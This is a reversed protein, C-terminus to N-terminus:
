FWDVTIPEWFDMGSLESGLMLEPRVATKIGSIDSKEHTLGRPGIFYGTLKKWGNIWVGFSQKENDDATERGVSENGLDSVASDILAVSICGGASGGLMAVRTMQVGGSNQTLGTGDARGLWFRSESEGSAGSGQALANIVVLADLASVAGDNNVDVFLETPDDATLWRPSYRSLDNIVLLADLATVIQDNNVDEALLLNHMPSDVIEAASSIVLVDDNTVQFSEFANVFGHIVKEAQHEVRYEGAPLHPLRWNGAADTTTEGSNGFQVGGVGISTGAYGYVRVISIDGQESVIRLSVEENELIGDSTVRKVLNGLADYAEIRGYSIGQYGFM